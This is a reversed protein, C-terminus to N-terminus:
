PNIATQLANLAERLAVGVGPSDDKEFAMRRNPEILVSPDDVWEDATKVPNPDDFFQDIFARRMHKPLRIVQMFCERMSADSNIIGGGRVVAERRATEKKLEREQIRRERDARIVGCQKLYISPIKDRNWAENLGGSEMLKISVARCDTYELSSFCDDFWVQLTAPRSKLWAGADPFRKSFDDLWQAYEQKTM